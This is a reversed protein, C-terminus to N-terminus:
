VKTVEKDRKIRKALNDFYEGSGDEKFESNYEEIIKMFEQLSEVREPDPLCRAVYSDVKKVADILVERWNSYDAKLKHIERGYRLELQFFRVLSDMETEIDCMDLDVFYGWSTKGRRIAFRSELASLMDCIGGRRLEARHSQSLEYGWWMAASGDLLVDFLFSLQRKSAEHAVPDDLLAQIREVFRHVDTFIIDRNKEIVMGIDDSDPYSPNFRGIDERRLQLVSSTEPISHTTQTAPVSEALSKMFCGLKSLVDNLGASQKSYEQVEADLFVAPDIRKRSAKNAKAVRSTKSMRRSKARTKGTVTNGASSSPLGGAGQGMPEAM